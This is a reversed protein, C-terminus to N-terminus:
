DSHLGLGAVCHQLSPECLAVKPGLIKDSQDMRLPQVLKVFYRKVCFKSLRVICFNFALDSYFKINLYM